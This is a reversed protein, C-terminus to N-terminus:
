ELDEPWEFPCYLKRDLHILLQNASGGPESLPYRVVWEALWTIDDEILLKGLADAAHRRMLLGPAKLMTQLDSIAERGAVQTFAQAAADRVRWNEDKLLTRLDPIAERGAVQAIARAAAQRLPWDSDQLMTRLDPIAERADIEALTEAAACRM